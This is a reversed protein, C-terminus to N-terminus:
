ASRHLSVRVATETKGYRAGTERVSAGDLGIARVDLRGILRLMESRETPGAAEPAPLKEAFDEISLDVRECRWRPRAQDGSERESSAECCRRRTACSAREPGGRRGPQRGEAVGGM